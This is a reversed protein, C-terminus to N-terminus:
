KGKGPDEGGEPELYNDLGSVFAADSGTPIKQLSSMAVAKVLDQPYSDLDKTNVRNMRQVTMDVIMRRLRSGPSTSNWARNVTVIRPHVRWVGRKTVLIRMATNRLLLDDLADGLLYLDIAKAFEEYAKANSLDATTVDVTINGTYIWVIYAQFAGVKLEPLRVVREKGEGWLKSCAAEFFKSKACIM